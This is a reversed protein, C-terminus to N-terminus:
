LVFESVNEKGNRWVLPRKTTLISDLVKRLVKREREREGIPAGDGPGGFGHSLTTGMGKGHLIFGTGLESESGKQLQFRQSIRVTYDESNEGSNVPFSIGRRDKGRSVDKIPPTRGNM